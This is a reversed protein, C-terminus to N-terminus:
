WQPAPHAAAYVAECLGEKPEGVSTQEGRGGTHARYNITYGVPSLAIVERGAEHTLRRRQRMWTAPRGSVM